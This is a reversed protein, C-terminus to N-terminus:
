KVVDANARRHFSTTVQLQEELEAQKACLGSQEFDEIQDSIAM